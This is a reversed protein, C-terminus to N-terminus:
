LTPSKPLYKLTEYSVPTIANYAEVTMEIAFNVQDPTFQVHYEGDPHKFVVLKAPTEGTAAGFAKELNVRTNGIGGPLAPEGAYPTPVPTATPELAIATATAAAEVTATM